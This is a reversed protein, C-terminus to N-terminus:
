ATIWRVRHPRRINRLRGAVISAWRKSCGRRSRRPWSRRCRSHCCPRSSRWGPMWVSRSSEPRHWANRFEKSMRTRSAATPEWYGWNIIKVPFPLLQRQRHAFSDKFACGAAYGAQHANVEIASISSFFVLFDLPERAVAECLAVSGAVKPLLSDAFAEEDLEDIPQNVLVMASHFVGNLAGFRQKAAAVADRVDGPRRVDVTRYITEAGLAEIQAIQARKGPDLESRGLLVLRAGVTRALYLSLEFGVGGLAGFILYVGRKRFATGRRVPTAAVCLERVFRLGKRLAVDHVARSECPENVIAAVTRSSVDQSSVDVAAVRWFPREKAVAKLLGHLGAAWPTVPEGPIVEHVDSTVLTLRLERGGYGKRGLTKILRFFAVLGREVDGERGAIVYVHRVNPAAAISIDFGDAEGAVTADPYNEAFLRTLPSREGLEVLLVRGASAAAVPPADLERPSWIPTYLDPASPATMRRFTLEKLTAVVRGREDTVKVDFCQAGTRRVHAYCLPPLEGAIRVQEVAYPVSTPRGGGEDAPVLAVITQLLGDMLGPHLIYEDAPTQDARALRVEGLAEDAGNTWVRQLTRFFGGYQLGTATLREYVMEQDFETTCRAQVDQLNVDADRSEAAAPRPTASGSSHTTVAGARETEVSFFYEEQRRTLLLRVELSDASVVLPSMWRVQCLDYRRERDLEALAEVVMELHGVGPLLPSGNVRHERVIPDSARLTKTFVTNDGCARGGGPDILPRARPAVPVAVALDSKATMWCRKREFPYTPLRLMRPREARPLLSWDITAGLVWLRGLRTMDQEAILIRVFERGANGDILLEAIGANATVTGHHLRHDRSAGSRFRTLHDIVERIDGAVFALRAEMAERGAQLTYALDGFRPAADHGVAWELHDLLSQAYEQLREESRASLVILEHQGSPAAAIPAAPPEEIVVHVNAGGAGFSSIGARRPCEGQALRPRHWPTLARQLVFGSADFDILPNPTEAHLSPALEGHEIQLVVKTLAAIGAAGELHGINSKVSGVACRSAEPPRKGFAATLGAMEIPDGLSTGTGHAEIYSITGADIQARDLAASILAAQAAPSPVTFGNTRGGHNSVSAKIVAYIRDGDEVAADRRKLLVAGVGEGPVYGDGGAGFSRCRGDTSLMGMESLRLYKHPHLSLNSGGAIAYDCEGRRLSECALHVAMLSSSCATDVALSPGHFDLAYSVRNAVSSFDANASTYRGGGSTEMGLLKYDDWMVGVFVGVRDGLARPLSARTYGADEITSWATELFLREQPDMARAQLPSIKFFLPDFRDVGELFGGWKSCSRGVAGREPSYDRRYDWREIPIEEICDMGSRLNEWFAQVNNARPYRGSIGIIAIEECNDGHRAGPAPAPASTPSAAAAPAAAAPMARRGSEPMVLERLRATHREMFYRTLGEISNIEFLLTGPLSGFDVSLLANLEMVMVSDIGYEEFRVRPAIRHLPVRSTRSVLDAFYREAAQALERPAAGSADVPVDPLPQVIAAPAEGAVKLVHEIRDRDGAAVLIEAHDSALATEFAEIGSDTELATMGSYQFYLNAQETRSLNMGADRWLPWNIARSVGSRRKTGRLEDRLVAYADLFRNAAAYSGSGFDGLVSAVSSCMVFLDLGEDRTALDLHITGDVKARMVAEFAGRDAEMLPLHAVEGACHIVGNLRQFRARAARVVAVTDDYRCVDSRVYIADGGLARIEEIQAQKGADVPSRGTLVVRAQCRKALYRTLVRGIGGTGGTVLYVGGRRLPQGTAFPDIRAEARVLRRLMRQGRSYRVQAGNRTDDAQFENWLLSRM